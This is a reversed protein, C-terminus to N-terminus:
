CIRPLQEGTLMDLIRRSGYETELVVKGSFEEVVEGIICAKEGLPHKGMESVIEKAVENSAIIIVKGENAMYLPDIGLIECLSQVEKRIPLTEQNIILGKHCAKAIENLTTAVGGRTPDRMIRIHEGYPLLSQILGNLPACDSSIPTNLNLGERLALITTGHDGIAGNIIIKDGSNLRGTLKFGEQLVGVGSTNIFIKDMMGKPVVKTDGTVIQVGARECTQHISEVIKKLDRLFFGEEIILGLSLYKPLAGMVALDNITGSVALKGIDGGPFFIPDVVYSDTTMVLSTSEFKILAGDDLPELLPNRFVPLFIKEILEHSLKGGSGHSLLIRDYQM